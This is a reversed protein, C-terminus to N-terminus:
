WSVIVKGTTKRSGLAEHAEPLQAATYIGGHIIRIKGESHLELMATMGEQLLLPNREALRLMNLGCVTQSQMLWRVPNHFGFGFVLGLTAFPGKRNLREAAGYGVIRGGPALLGLASRFAKGGLNDYVVDLGKNGRINRVADAFHQTNYNIPHDTGLSRLLQLKEESGATGYVICGNMKALQVLLSGVGGAAAQILVHEGARLKFLQTAAFWATCGQTALACADAPHMNEPIVVISRADANVHTAYGGFRTFALVRTGPPPAEANSGAFEIRGVVEYGLVAPIPPAERYLGKRAMVDAFNLGFSEVKIRVEHAAPEPLHHARREFAASADGNKVLYFAEM